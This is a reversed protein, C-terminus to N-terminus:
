KGAEDFPTGGSEGAKEFPTKSDGSGGGFAKKLGHRVKKQLHKRGNSIAKEHLVKEDELHALAKKHREPDGLVQAHKKLTEADSPTHYDPTDSSTDGTTYGTM